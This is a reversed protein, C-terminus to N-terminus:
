KLRLTPGSEKVEIHEVELKGIVPLVLEDNAVKRIDGTRMNVLFAHQADYEVKMYVMEDLMCLDGSKLSEFGITGRMRPLIVQM